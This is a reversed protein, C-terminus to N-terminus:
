GRPASPATGTWTPAPVTSRTTQVNFAKSVNLTVTATDTAVGDTSEDYSDDSAAPAFNNIILTVTATNPAAATQPRM